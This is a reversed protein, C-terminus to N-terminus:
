PLFFLEEWEADNRVCSPSFARHEYSEIRYLVIYKRAGFLQCIALKTQQVSGFL